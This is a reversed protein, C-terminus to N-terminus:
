VAGSWWTQTKLTSNQCTFNSGRSLYHLSFTIEWVLYNHPNNNM